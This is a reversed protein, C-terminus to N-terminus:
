LFGSVDKQIKHLIFSIIMFLVFTVVLLVSYFFDAKKYFAKQHDSYLKMDEMGPVRPIPPSIYDCAPTAVVKMYCVGLYDEERLEPIGTLSTQYSSDGANCFKYFSQTM